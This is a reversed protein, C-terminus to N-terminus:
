KPCGISVTLGVAPIFKKCALDKLSSLKSSSEDLKPEETKPEVPPTETAATAAEGTEAPTAVAVTTNSTDAAPTEATTEPAPTTEGVTSAAGTELLATSGTPTSDSSGSSAVDDSKSDTPTAKAQEVRKKVPAKKEEAVHAPRSAKRHSGPNSSKGSYGGSPTATFTGLPGGFGLRVGMGAQAVPTFATAASLVTALALIKTNM